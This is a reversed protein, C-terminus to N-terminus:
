LLGENALWLGAGLGDCRWQVGVLWAERVPGADEAYEEAQGEADGVEEM